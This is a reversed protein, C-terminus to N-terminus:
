EEFTVDEKIDVKVTTGKEEEEKLNTPNTKKLIYEGWKVKGSSLTKKM